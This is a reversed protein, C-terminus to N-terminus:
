VFLSTSTVLITLKVHLCVFVCVNTQEVKEEFTPLLVGNLNEEKGKRPGSSPLASPYVCILQNVTSRIQGACLKEIYM